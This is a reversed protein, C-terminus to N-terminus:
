RTMNKVRVLYRSTQLWTCLLIRNRKTDLWAASLRVRAVNLVMFSGWQLGLYMHMSSVAFPVWAHVM